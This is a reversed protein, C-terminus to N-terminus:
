VIPITKSTLESYTSTEANWISWVVKVSGSDPAAYSLVMRSQNDFEQSAVSSSDTINIVEAKIRQNKVDTAVKAVAYATITPAISTIEEAADDDTLTNKATYFKLTGASTNAGIKVKLRHGQVFIKDIMNQWTAWSWQQSEAVFGRVTEKTSANDAGWMDVFYNGKFYVISNIRQGNNLNEIEVRFSAKSALFWDKLGLGFQPVTDVGNNRLGCWTVEMQKGDLTLNDGSYAGIAAGNSNKSYGRISDAQGVNAPLSAGEGVTIYFFTGNPTADELTATIYGDGGDAGNINTDAGSSTGGLVVAGARATIVLFKDTNNTVLAEYYAGAGGGGGTLKTWETVGEPAAVTSGSGGEGFIESDLTKGVGGSNTEAITGVAGAAATIMEITVGAPLTVGHPTIVNDILAVGNISVVGGNGAVGAVVGGAETYVAEVGGKGGGATYTVGAVRFWSDNGKNAVVPTGDTPNVRYGAGAGGGAVVKIRMARNPPIFLDRVNANARRKQPVLYDVVAAHTVGGNGLAGSYVGDANTGANIGPNGGTGIVVPLEIMDETPNYVIGRAVAGSAGGASQVQTPNALMIERILGVAGDGYTTDRIIRTASGGASSNSNFTSPNGKAANYISFESGVPATSITGNGATTIDNVGLFVGQGETPTAPNETASSGSWKASLGGLGGMAKVTTGYATLTTDGGKVGDNTTSNIGANNIGGSGGGGGLVGFTVLKGAPVFVKKENTAITVIQNNYNVLPKRRIMILGDAGPLGQMYDLDQQGTGGNGAKGAKGKFTKIDATRNTVTYKFYAGSGGAGGTHLTGNGQSGDGGKGYYGLNEVSVADAGLQQAIPSTRNRQNGPTQNSLVGPTESGLLSENFSGPGSPGDITVTGGAGNAGGGMGVLGGAGPKGAGAILSVGAISLYTNTGATGNMTTGSSTSNACGGGGSGPGIAWIEAVEYDNVVIDIEDTTPYIFEITGDDGAPLPTILAQIMGGIGPSGANGATTWGPGHRGTEGWIDVTEASRNKVVLKIFGGAGGGGGYSWAEDGIGWAGDGGSGQRVGFMDLSGTAGKQVSWRSGIVADLGKQVVSPLIEVGPIEVSTTTTIEAIGGKGANGNSFSSGNGWAGGTGKAGGHAKAMINSVTIYSDEGDEGDPPIYAPTYQSGGGGGGGAIIWIEAQMMPGLQITDRSDEPLVVVGAPAQSTDIIKCTVTVTPYDNLTIKLTKDGDTRRDTITTLMLKATGDSGTVFSGSLPNEIDNSDIGTITYPVSTGADVGATVLTFTVVDGENITSRSTLLRYQSTVEGDSLREWIRLRRANVTAGTSSTNLPVLDGLSSNESVVGAPIYPYLLWNTEYGLIGMLDRGPNWDLSDSMHKSGVHFILEALDKVSVSDELVGVREELSEIREEFEVLKGYGPGGVGFVQDLFTGLPVKGSVWGGPTEQSIMMLDNASVPQVPNDLKSIPKNSQM